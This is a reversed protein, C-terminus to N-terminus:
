IGEFTVTFSDNSYAPCGDWVQYRKWIGRTKGALVITTPATIDASSEPARFEAMTGPAVMLTKGTGSTGAYATRTKIYTSTIEDIFVAYAVGDDSNFIKEGTAVEERLDVSPYIYGTATVTASGSLASATSIRSKTGTLAFSIETNPACATKSSLYVVVPEWDVDNTSKLFQKTYKIVGATREANTITAIENGVVSTTEPSSIDIDGGDTAVSRYFAFNEARLTM